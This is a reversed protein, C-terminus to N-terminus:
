ITPREESLGVVVVLRKYQVKGRALALMEQAGGNIGAVDWKASIIPWHGLVPCCLPSAAIFCKESAAARIPGSDHLRLRLLTDHGHEQGSQKTRRQVSSAGAVEFCFGPNSSIRQKCPSVAGVDAGGIGGGAHLDHAFLAPRTRSSSSIWGEPNQCRWVLNNRGKKGGRVFSLSFFVGRSEDCWDFGKEKRRM